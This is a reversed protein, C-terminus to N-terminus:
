NLPISHYPKWVHLQSSSECMFRIKQGVVVYPIQGSMTLGIQRAVIRAMLMVVVM